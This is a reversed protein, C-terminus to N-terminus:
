VIKTTTDIVTKKARSPRVRKPTVPLPVVTAFPRRLVEQYRKITAELDPREWNKGDFEVRTESVKVGDSYYTATGTVELKANKIFSAPIKALDAWRMYQTNGEKNYTFSPCPSHDNRSLEVITFKSCSYDTENRILVFKEGANIESHAQDSLAILVDTVNIKDGAKYQTTKVINEGKSYEFNNYQEIHGNSFCGSCIGIRKDDKTYAAYGRITGDDRVSNVVFYARNSHHTGSCRNKFEEKLKVKDGVKLIM